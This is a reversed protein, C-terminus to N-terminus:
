VCSPSRFAPVELALGCKYNTATARVKRVVVKGTEPPSTLQISQTTDSTRFANDLRAADLCNTILV